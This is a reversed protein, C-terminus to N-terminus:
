RHCAPPPRGASECRHQPPGLRALSRNTRSRRDRLAPPERSAPEAAARSSAVAQARRSTQGVLGNEARSATPRSLFEAVTQALLAAPPKSASQPSKPRAGLTRCRAAPRALATAASTAAFPPSHLPYARLPCRASWVTTPICGSSRLIYEPANLSRKTE